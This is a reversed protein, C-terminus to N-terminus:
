KRASVLPKQPVPVRVPKFQGPKMNGPMIPKKVRAPVEALRINEYGKRRAVIRYDFSVSSAGGGLERVEFGSASKNAVYLGKCDGNPTLFVHYDVATNVTELFTPDLSIATSGHSLQASGFDEFWNETSQMTYLSLDRGNKGPVQNSLFGNCHLSGDAYFNCFGGYGSSVDLVFASADSGEENNIVATSYNISNNLIFAANGDDETALLGWAGTVGTDAWVAANGFAGAGTGSGFEKQGYVGIGEVSASYGEVGITRNTTSATEEGIIAGQFDTSNDSSGFVGFLGTSPAEGVLPYTTTSNGFGIYGSGGVIAGRGGNVFIELADGSGSNSINFDPSSTSGSINGFAASITGGASLNGTTSQNGTFSNSANLQPVKSTDLNLTVSGSTGGGTLDTGANVATIDGTGPFTQGPAFTFVGAKSLKLGTEAPTNNDQGFLLNLTAGPNTTNNGTPESQWEFHQMVAKHTSSSFSSAELDLPHSNFGKTATAVGKTIPELTGRILTTGNVDLTALPNMLGLGVKATSGSGSQFFVSNGLTTGNPTWLPIFDTTGSGGVAPNDSSGSAITGVAASASSNPPAALVFASPPLGGVTQADAAKLAYPVSLLLIRPQEAQGQAQVGLWRAQGSTFLEAPLGASKTSGLMVTYHGASNAQVNQTELWLPSGGQQEAYFSFTVGVMGSLPKGDAGTLTGNFNIMTPVTSSAAIPLQQAMLPLACALFVVSLRTCVVHRSM